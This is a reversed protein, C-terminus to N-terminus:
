LGNWGDGCNSGSTIPTETTAVVGEFVVSWSTPGSNLSTAFPKAYLGQSSSTSKCTANNNTVEIVGSQIFVPNAGVPVGLNTDRYVYQTCFFGGSTTCVPVRHIVEGAQSILVSIEYGFRNVGLVKRQGLFNKTWSDGQNQILFM